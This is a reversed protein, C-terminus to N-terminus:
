NLLNYRLLYVQLRVEEQRVDTFKDLMEICANMLRSLCAHLAKM